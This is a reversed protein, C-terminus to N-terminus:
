GHIADTDHCGSCDLQTDSDWSPSDGQHCYDTTCARAQADWAPNNTGVTALGSFVLDVSGDAHGPSDFQAPVQHCETCFAQHDAHRGTTPRPTTGDGHCTTCAEPGGEQTHCGSSTCAVGVNGGAYDAGHCGQCELLPNGDHPGAFIQALAVAHFQPSQADAWGDPHAGLDAPPRDRDVTCAALALALTAIRAAAHM